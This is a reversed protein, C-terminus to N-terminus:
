DHVKGDAESRTERSREYAIFSTKPTQLYELNLKQIDAMERRLVEVREKIVGNM